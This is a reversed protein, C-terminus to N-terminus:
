IVVNFNTRSHKAKSTKFYSNNAKYGYKFPCGSGGTGCQFPMMRQKFGRRNSLIAARGFHSM